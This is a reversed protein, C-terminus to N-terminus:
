AERRHFPIMQLARSSHDEQLADSVTTDRRAVSTRQHSKRGTDTLHADVIPAPDCREPVFFFGVVYKIGATISAYKPAIVIIQTGASQENCVVQRVSLGWVTILETLRGDM